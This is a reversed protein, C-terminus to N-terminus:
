RTKASYVVRSSSELSALDLLILPGGRCHSVMFLLIGDYANRLMLFSCNCRGSPFSDNLGNRELWSDM